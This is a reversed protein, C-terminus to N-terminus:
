WRGVKLDDNIPRNRRKYHLNGPFRRYWLMRKDGETVVGLTMSSPIM